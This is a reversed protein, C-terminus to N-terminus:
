VAIVRKRELAASVAALTSHEAIGLPKLLAEAQARLKDCAENGRALAADNGSNNGRTWASAARNFLRDAEKALAVAKLTTMKM